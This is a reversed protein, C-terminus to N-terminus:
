TKPLTQDRFYTALVADLEDPRIPKSLYDDMGASLCRERDGKMANATLAVVPQHVGSTKEKQRLVATAELGDMEPMQVDMLVLDFNQKGLADLAERGNAAVVVRHGRKELLRMVVKQNVLNDEALLVRLSVAPANAPALSFRTILPVGDQQNLSGVVRAIAERLESQRIPKMLYAAVGLKHCHAADGRQGASTLMMITATYLDPRQRIQEILGFGDMNPMLLDTLILGYPEGTERARSLEILAKEGGAVLTPKMEWRTLMGQLIRRNTRNDDVVLVRVGRLIEPLVPSALQIAKASGAGLRATFHFRSGHGAESEVWIQGQMMGVLRTSITLGLGSGGYKRTTSTDAQSFPDFILKQKDAPIGIGTDSVIFHLICDSNEGAESQVRLGVEGESTFKIANGVLNVVVQRLRTSDGRVCEPVEAAVDCLLELRKEDARLALMKMTSELCDRLDFDLMELDLKGAEIKSFDLIDNIVALLSDASLKVIDLFERQELTLDTDLALDTMGVIGNLPTRIEHSMNALFEGKARSAAEAAEKAKRMKEHSERIETIDEVVGVFSHLKGDPGRAWRARVAVWVITGNSKVIRHEDILDEGRQVATNWLRLARERDAPHLSDVWRNGCSQEATIGTIETLRENVYEPTGNADTRFIGVPATASLMRFVEESQRLASEVVVRQTVDQYVAVIGERKGNSSIPVAYSEVYVVSGDKRRRRMTGTVVGGGLVLRANEQFGAEAEPPVILANITNGFCEEPTYGFIRNFAPNTLTITHSLDTVVIAAPSTQILADLLNADEPPLQDAPQRTPRGFSGVVQVRIDGSTEKAM